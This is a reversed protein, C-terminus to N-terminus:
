ENKEEMMACLFAGNCMLHWLHPLGSESDISRWDEWVAMCHRLMAEHFKEPDVRRWNEPDAYKKNGYERIKAVAYIMAPPVMSLQLKGQDSKAGPIKPADPVRQVSSESAKLTYSGPLECGAQRLIDVIVQKRVNNEDALIGIQTMKNKAERYEKVIDADSMPLLEKLKM